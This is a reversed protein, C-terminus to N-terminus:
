DHLIAGAVVLLAGAILEGALWPAEYEPRGYREVRWFTWGVLTAGCIAIITGIASM